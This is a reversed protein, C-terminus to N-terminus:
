RNANAAREAKKRLYWQKQYEKMYMPNKKNWEANRQRQSKGTGKNWAPTGIKARSIKLRTETSRICGVPGREGGTSLNCLTGEHTIRRGYHKIWYKEWECADEDTIDKHLFHVKVNDAGIKKIKNKLLQNTYGSYCHNCPRWRDNKGKGIYFPVNDQDLYM